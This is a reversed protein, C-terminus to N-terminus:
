RRRGGGGGGDDATSASRLGTQQHRPLLNVLRDQIFKPNEGGQIAQIGECIILNCMYEEDHRAELKNAIPTLVLNALIIGYFTTILAIAMNPGISAVDTIDKLLNVLGIVTGMMGFAPAYGAGKIYMSRGAFHRAELQELRSELQQRVKEPDISDVVMMLGTRMFPDDIRSLEEELALLGNVRAKKAYEVLQNIYAIPDYQRPILVIKIHKPIKSIMSWPYSVMLATFTGGVVIFISTPDYFNNIKATNFTYSGDVVSRTLSMGILLMSFGLILGLISMFDTKNKM